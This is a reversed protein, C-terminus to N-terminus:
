IIAAAESEERFLPVKDAKGEFPRKSVWGDIKKLWAKVDIVFFYISVFKIILNDLTAM